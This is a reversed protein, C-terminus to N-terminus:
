RKPGRVWRASRRKLSDRDLAEVENEIERAKKASELRAEQQKAKIDSIGSKRGGFWIAAFGAVAVLAAVLWDMM